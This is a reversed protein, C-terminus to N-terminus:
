WKILETNLKSLEEACYKLGHNYGVNHSIYIVFVIILIFSVWLFIEMAIRKGIEKEPLHIELNINNNKYEMM